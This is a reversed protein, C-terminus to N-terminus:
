RLIRAIQKKLKGLAKAEVQRIRERSVGRRAAIADLTQPPENSNLGFRLSLIEQESRTLTELLGLVIEIEQKHQMETELDGETDELYDRFKTNEGEELLWELSIAYERAEVEEALRMKKRLAKLIRTEDVGRVLGCEETRHSERDEQYMYQVLEEQEPMRKLVELLHKITRRRRGLFMEMHVPVRIMRAQDSVARGISQRIWWTVYTSIRHGGISAFRDIGKILGLNGEQILDLFQVGRKMYRKAVRVVLRLNCVILEERSAANGKEKERVLAKEQQVSLLHGEHLEKFYMRFASIPEDTFEAWQVQTLPEKGTADAIKAEEIEGQEILFLNEATPEGGGAADDQGQTEAIANVYMRGEEFLIQLRSNKAFCKLINIDVVKKPYM